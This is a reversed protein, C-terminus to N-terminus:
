QFIIVYINEYDLHYHIILKLNEIQYTKNNMLPTWFFPVRYFHAGYSLFHAVQTHMWGWKMNMTECVCVCM